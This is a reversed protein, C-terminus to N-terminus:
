RFMKPIQISSDTNQPMNKIQGSSPRLEYKRLFLHKKLMVGHSAGYYQYFKDAILRSIKKSSIKLVIGETILMSLKEKVDTKVFQEKKLIDKIVKEKTIYEYHITIHYRNNKSDPFEGYTIQPSSPKSMFLGGKTITLWPFVVIVFVVLVICVLAIGIIIRLSNPMM